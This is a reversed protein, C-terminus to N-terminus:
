TRVGTEAYIRLFRSRRDINEIRTINFKDGGIDVRDSELLDSRYHCTIVVTESPETRGAIVGETGSSTEIKGYITAQTAWSSAYGGFGDASETNREITVIDRFDRSCFEAV